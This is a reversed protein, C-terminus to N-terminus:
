IGFVENVNITVDLFTVPSLKDTIDLTQKIQYGQQTPQHYITLSQNNIDVLWVELIGNEAYLPIKINRDYNITTDAVEIILLIDETTPIKTEYFDARPKLLAIDPQPESNDNLQIPNQISVIAKDGLKKPLLNTLRNVTAAHKLGIPSMEIIEGNILEVRDDETLIGVDAMKHYQEVTFKRTLLQM